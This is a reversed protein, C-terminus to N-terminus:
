LDMEMRTDCRCSAACPTGIKKFGIKTHLNIAATLKTDCELTAKQFGMARAKELASLELAKGIKKGQAKPSVALKILEVTTDDIKKLAITGITEDHLRAMLIAGGPAIITQRPQNVAAMDEASPEYHQWVWELYLRRFDDAHQDNYEIIDLGITPSHALM